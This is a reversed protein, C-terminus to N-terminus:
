MGLFLQSDVHQSCLWQRKHQSNPAQDQALTPQLALPRALISTWRFSSM